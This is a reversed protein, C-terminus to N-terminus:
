FLPGEFRKSSIIYEISLSLIEFNVESSNNHGGYLLLNSLSLEDLLHINPDIVQLGNMLILRENNFFHCRLFFHSVSEVESSCPCLPDFTDLFNHQFKHERLHSLGLRLRTLLQIGLPNWIGYISNAPSRILKLLANRFINLSESKIIEDNLNNWEAIVSPFFSNRYFETRCFINPIRVPNRLNLNHNPKPIINYLYSPSHSYYINYFTCLRKMWRRSQLSEFGLENYLKLRSSGRIAGTIALAANYQISEIRNIFSANNPQDYIIDAYDFLSRIFSKYITILSSRPVYYRLKRLVHIGKTAKEIVLKIHDKFTLKEDLLLGLHKQVASREVKMNNFELDPHNVINHKRSFIVEKAQKTLDPNFSMKWQHAWNSIKALDRNLINASSIPDFVVSFLSTDDAFLKVDSELDISIDNIYILFFLPGLISGQPVGSCIKAWNSCQGNLVVRQQRNDLFSELLKILNGSIGHKKLKYILGEHWVRDFAKSIDLFVGRTEHSPNINFSTYIQHTISLLQNTCSDGSRFGSQNVNLIKLDEFYKYLNNYIVKEFIKGCIPLLSIPRYNGVVNKAGKKHIPVVNAKKWPFPFVGDNISNNFITLLPTVISADCLKLMKVSIGDFGHSKNPDLLHIIKLIDDANFNLYRLDNRLISPLQNPLVSSNNIVTCQEAFFQNFINAKAHFDTVFNNNSLIPPIIPLKRDSFLSKLISWYTKSSTNPDRLKANIRDYHVKKGEEILTILENRAYEVKSFDNLTKGNKLYNRLLSNKFLIKKKITNTIWPADRDDFSIVKNPIYNNMINSLTSNFIEVQKHVDKGTFARNWDFSDICRRIADVNARDYYWIQREYPPPYIIKFNVEAYVIQHHCNQHLSSHVGSNIILNPQNTFILDICSSSRPLIHTPDKIIQTLGFSSTVADIQIGSYTDQDNEGWISMKANFDGLIIIFYPNSNYILDILQEFSNIFEDFEDNTQSPSRYLTVLHCKKNEYLMEIALCEQLQHINLINIGLTQKYYLCVGGKKTNHPNDARIINYGNLTLAPDDPPISHDLFTEAICIIDFNHIANYAQLYTLKVCDYALISNVNWYCVKLNANSRPGPNKEVDGSLYLALLSYFFSCYAFIDISLISIFIKVSCITDKFIICDILALLIFSIILALIVHNYSTLHNTRSRCFFSSRTTLAYIYKGIRERWSNIDNPM